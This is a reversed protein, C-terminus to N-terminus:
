EYRLAEMPDVKAARRAPVLCALCAVVVLLLSLGGYTTADTPKVGYLLSSMVRTIALAGTLGTAVGALALTMGQKIVLKIVERSQAGLAMRVGIEHTRQSVSYSIVGYIGVVAILLGLAAFSGLLIANFRRPAVQGSLIQELARIGAVPDTRNMALIEARLNSALNKSREDTRVILQLGIPYWQKFPVYIEPVVLSEFGNPKVDGVVGVVKRPGNLNLIHGVPDEGGFYHRALAQNITVVRESQGTDNESFPRGRAVPIQLVRFYDASVGRVHAMQDRDREPSPHGEVTFDYSTDGGLLPLYDVVAFSQAGPLRQVRQFLEAYYDDRKPYKSQDPWCAVSLVNEPNFGLDTHTVLWYSKVLLGAGVLLVLALAVEAVVLLSRFWSRSSGGFLGWEGKMLSNSLDSKASQLAPVTGLVLGALLTIAATFGLVWPDVHIEVIRPFNQPLISIVLKLVWGALLLGAVAGLVCLLLSETLFQCLLRFRTAGLASRVAIERGRSATRALLLNAVNACAILLVISVAGFLILLARRAQGVLSDHLLMVRMGRDTNSAPYQKALRLAITSAEAQAQELGIGPKLRALVHVSLSNRSDRGDSFWTLPIFLDPELQLTPETPFTFDPATVGVVIYSNDSFRVIQGVIGPDSGFRRQWFGHSLIVVQSNTAQAEEPLFTRGLFPQVGLAAFLNTSIAAGKMRVPEEDQRDIFDWPRWGAIEEFATSQNKLDVFDPPSVWVSQERTKENQWFVQALRGPDKYPLPQLILANVASFIATNAGIGLALTLVAVATFGPNKLLQRFAYRLDNM